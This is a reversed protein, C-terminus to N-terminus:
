GCRKCAGRLLVDHHEVTVGLRESLKDIARELNPDDFAILKGCQNCILHHHHAGSPDATEFRAQGQGVEVREVLGHEALLELVRYITARGVPPGEARLKDEIEVASLACSERDLLDIVRERAGGRNLGAQTLVAHVHESWSV